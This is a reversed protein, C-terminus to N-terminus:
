RATSLRWRRGRGAAGRRPGRGARGQLGRPHLTCAARGAAALAAARRQAQGQAHPLLRCVGCDSRRRAVLDPGRGPPTGRRADLSLARAEGLQRDRPGTRGARLSLADGLEAGRPGGRAPRLLRQLHRARDQLAAVGGQHARHGRHDRRRLRYLQPRRHRGPFRASRFHHGRARRRLTRDSNQILAGRDRAQAARTIAQAQQKDEDICGVVLAAGYRRALPVVRQFREEGDELNISNIISKGPARKLAEEIVVADTSDIMLPVKVKKVVIELFGTM